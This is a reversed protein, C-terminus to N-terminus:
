SKNLHLNGADMRCFCDRAHGNMLGVTHMYACVITSGVFKFGRKKLEASIKDSLDTRAPVDETRSHLDNIPKGDVFSWLWVDFSGYEEQIQRFARANAIVANIKQRNRIIGADHLLEDLKADNYSAIKDPDFGDFANRYNERKRLITIWSLGAQTCSLALMEFLKRDDHIPQGWENDHYPIYEMYQNAWDCRIVQCM